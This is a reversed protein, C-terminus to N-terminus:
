YFNVEFDDIYVPDEHHNLLYVKIEKSNNIWKPLQYNVAFDCWKNEYKILDVIKFSKWIKNESTKAEIVIKPELSNLSESFIKGKISIVLAKKRQKIDPNVVLCPGYQNGKVAFGSSKGSFSNKTTVRKISGWLINEDFDNYFKWKSDNKIFSYYNDIPIPKYNKAFQLFNTEAFEKQHYQKILLALERAVSKRGKEAYHETTLHQDIFESDEVLELNNIVQVGQNSFYTALKEANDKMFYTLKEGVLLDAKEVNEPVLNFVLNWNREKGLQIIDDFDKIRPNNDFDIQFAYTKIYNCALETKKQDRKGNMGKIGANDMAKDWTKTDKFLLEFPLDHFPHSSWAGKLLKIREKENLVEYDKFSLLARNVLAPRDQILIVEKQLATELKSYIWFFSFSRLNLTVVVTIKKTSPPINSLIHKFIGAHAARKTVSSTVLDPYYDSVFEGMTRRDNDYKSFTINSSEGLYVIDSEPKISQISKLMKHSHKKLDDEYFYNTYVINMGIFLIVLLSVRLAIKYELNM